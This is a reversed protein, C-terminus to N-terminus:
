LSSIGHGGKAKGGRDGQQGGAKGGVPGGGRLLSRSRGVRLQRASENRVYGLTRIAELVKIRNPESVSSPRNLVNSVTGISVGARAAVDKISVGSM